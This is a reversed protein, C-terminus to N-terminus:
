VVVILIGVGEGEWPWSWDLKSAAQLLKSAVPDEIGVVRGRYLYKKMPIEDGDRGVVSVELDSYPRDLKKAASGYVCVVLVRERHKELILKCLRNAIEIRQEHTFRGLHVSM